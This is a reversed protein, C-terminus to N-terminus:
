ESELAELRFLLENYDEESLLIYQNNLDFLTVCEKQGEVIECDTVLLKNFSDYEVYNEYLIDTIYDIEYDDMEWVFNAIYNELDEVHAEIADIYEFMEDIEEKTYFDDEILAMVYLDSVAGDMNNQSVIEDVEEKTYYVGEEDVTDCGNLGIVLLIVM